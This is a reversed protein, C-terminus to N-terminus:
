YLQLGWAQVKILFSVAAYTDEQLNQWIELFVKKWLVGRTAVESPQQFNKKVNRKVVFSDWWTTELPISILKCNM